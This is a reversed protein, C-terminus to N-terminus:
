QLVWSLNSLPLLQTGKPIDRVIKFCNGSPGGRQSLEATGINTDSLVLSLQHKSTTTQSDHYYLLKM